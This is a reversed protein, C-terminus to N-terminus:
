PASALRHPHVSLERLKELWQQRHDILASRANKQVTPDAPLADLYEHVFAVVELSAGTARAREIGRSLAIQHKHASDMIILLKNM